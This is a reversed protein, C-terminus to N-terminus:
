KRTINYKKKLISAMFSCLGWRIIKTQKSIFSNTWKYMTEAIEKESVAGTKERVIQELDKEKGAM